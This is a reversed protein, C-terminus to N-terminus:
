EIRGSVPQTRVSLISNDPHQINMSTGLKEICRSGQTTTVRVRAINQQLDQTIMPVSGIRIVYNRLIVATDIDVFLIQRFCCIFYM